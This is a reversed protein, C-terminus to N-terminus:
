EGSAPSRDDDVEPWDIEDVGVGLLEAIRRARQVSPRRYGTIYGHLTPQKIGLAKAAKKQTLDARKLAERLTM